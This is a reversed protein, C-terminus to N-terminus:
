RVLGRFMALRVWRRCTNSSLAPSSTDHSTGASAGPMVKGTNRSRRRSSASPAGSIVSTCTATLRLRLGLPRSKVTSSSSIRVSGCTVATSIAAALLAAWCWPVATCVRLWARCRNPVPCLM